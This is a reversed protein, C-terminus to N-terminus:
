VSSTVQSPSRSELAPLALLAEPAFDAGNPLVVTGCIPDLVVRAFYAPDHLPEFIPGELLPTLDVQKRAGNTFTLQLCTGGTPIMERIRLIM